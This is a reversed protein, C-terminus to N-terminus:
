LTARLFRNPTGGLWSSNHLQITGMVAQSSLHSWVAAPSANPFWELYKAAEGAVHPSAMSTGSMAIFGSTNQYNSSIVSEGPALIDVCTGYNSSAREADTVTTAGVTIVTPAGGPAQNCATQPVDTVPHGNGAAAVVVYGAAVLNTAATRVAQVNGYGLSMNVVGPKHGNGAIWDMGAIAYSSLGGGLCNVVRGAYIRVGKAVGSHAGGATGAVHSGHGHCDLANTAADAVFNGGKASPIFSARPHFDMHMPNIGTDLVYLAVGHGTRGWGYSQDLPLNFDDIRDIGWSPPNPQLGFLEAAGDPEVEGVRRDARLAAVQTSDLEASFGHLVRYFVLAPRVRADAAVSEVLRRTTASDTAAGQLSVLYPASAYSASAAPAAPPVVATMVPDTDCSALLPLLAILRRPNM